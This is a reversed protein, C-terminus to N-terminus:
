YNPFVSRKQQTTTHVEQVTSQVPGLTRRNKMSPQWVKETLPLNCPYRVVMM